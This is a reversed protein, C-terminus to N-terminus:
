LCDCGDPHVGPPAPVNFCPFIGTDAAPAIPKCMDTPHGLKTYISDIFNLCFCAAATTGSATIIITVIARCANPAVFMAVKRHNSYTGAVARPTALLSALGM